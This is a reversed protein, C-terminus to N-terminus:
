NAPVEFHYSEVVTELDLSITEVTVKVGSIETVTKLPIGQWVSVTVKATQGMQEIQESYKVCEKGCVKDKGVEQIKYKSVIEDNLDLYNVSKPAANKQVSKDSLNVMYAMGDRIITAIDGLPSSVESCTLAGYEDFYTTTTTKQGFMNVVQKMTGAKVGYRATSQAFSSVSSLILLAAAFIIKKM